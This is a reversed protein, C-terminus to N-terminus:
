NKQYMINFFSWNFNIGVLYFINSGKYYSTDFPNAYKTIVVNTIINPKIIQSKLFGFLAVVALVLIGSIVGIMLVKLGKKLSKNM